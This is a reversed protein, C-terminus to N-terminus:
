AAIHRVRRVCGCKVLLWYGILSGITIYVGQIFYSSPVSTTTIVAGLGFTLLAKSIRSVLSMGSLVTARIRSEIEQNAYDSIIPREINFIGITSVLVIIIFTNQIIIALGLYGAAAGFKILTLAKEMTLYEEIRYVNRQLFYNLMLGLSFAAGIWFNSVNIEEFYPAYTGYLFYENCAALMGFLTLAFITSNNRMISFTDSLMRWTKTEENVESDKDDSRENISLTIFSAIIQIVATAVMLPVFSAKGYLQFFIGSIVGAIALGMVGNAFVISSQKKYNLGETKTAEYLLAESAGSVLASGTSQFFRMLYLTLVSPAAILVGIGLVSMLYGSAVSIKRGFKDAIVGTPVEMAIITLSYLGQAFVVHYLTMGQSIAYLSTIITSFYLGDLFEIFKLKTVTSLGFLKYM